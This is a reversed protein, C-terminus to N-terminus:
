IVRSEVRCVLTAVASCCTSLFQAEPALLFTPMTWKRICIKSYSELIGAFHDHVRVSWDSCRCARSGWQPRPVTGVDGSIILLTWRGVPIQGRPRTAVKLLGVPILWTAAKRLACFCIHVLARVCSATWVTAMNKSVRSRALQSTM